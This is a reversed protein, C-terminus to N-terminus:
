NCLYSELHESNMGLAEQIPPLYRLNFFVEHIKDFPFRFFNDLIDTPSFETRSMFSKIIQKAEEQKGEESLLFVKSITGLFNLNKDSDELMEDVLINAEKTM